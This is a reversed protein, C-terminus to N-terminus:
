IGAREEAAVRKWTDFYAHASEIAQKAQEASASQVIGIVQSPHSPNTSKIKEANEANKVEKGDIYMPYERGFEGAVKKLAADMAAKNESKTFDVFPENTFEPKQLSTEATAM